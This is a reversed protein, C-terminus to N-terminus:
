AILDKTKSKQILRDLEQQGTQYVNLKAQAVTQGDIDLRCEFSALRDDRLLMTATSRLLSGNPYHDLTSKFGRSGLLMGIEPAENHQRGHWGSWVGITQAMIEIAFWAPLTGQPTLFPALAGDASVSVECVANDKEIAYVRDLLVMPAQHPLYHSPPQFNSM